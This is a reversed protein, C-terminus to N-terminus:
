QRSGRRSDAADLRVNLDKVVPDARVHPQVGGYHLLRVWSGDQKFAGLGRVGRFAFRDVDSWLLRPSRFELRAVVGDSTVWIGNFFSRAGAVGFNAAGVAGIAVRRPSGDSIGVVVTFVAVGALIFWLITSIQM